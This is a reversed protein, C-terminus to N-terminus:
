GPSFIFPYKVIVIGGGNPEPFQMKMFQGRVCSDVTSSGMSEIVSAKSVSGDGAITFQIKIKGALTPNKQLERQYCYKIATLKRKVVKDIQSRDLSGMIMPNSSRVGLGTGGKEGFSGGGKGYGSAGRGNGKTGYGGLGSASGGGGLGGGRSGLGGNGRQGGKAGILGGLNAGGALGGGMGDISGVDDMAGMLGANMAAEKDQQAKDVEAKDGKTKDKKNDKKGVKGEEKKAKEGEGADPNKEPKKDPKPPPEEVKELLVQAFEQDLENVDTESPPPQLGVYAGFGAGLFLMVLFIGLFTYDVDSTLAAVVRKGPRVMHAYFLVGDVDILLRLGGTMEIEYLQGAKKARNTAILEEISLHQGDIEGMVNWHSDIRAIFSKGEAVFLKYDFGGPLSEDNAFFNNRWDTTVDSWIPPSVKLIGSVSDPVWGVEVGLLNWKSGTTAGITVAAGKEASFHQTDLLMNQWVQSVELVKPAKTDLGLNSAGKGSNRLFDMVDEIRDEPAIEDEAAPAPAPAAAAAKAPKAAKPAQPAPRVDMTPITKDEDDFLVEITIAGLTLADGSSLTVNAVKNGEHLTGAETGLDVLRLSGDDEINIVAHLAGVTPDDLHLDNGEGSGIKIAPASVDYTGLLTSERYVKFHIVPNQSDNAM